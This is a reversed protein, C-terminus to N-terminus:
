LKVEKGVPLCQESYIDGGFDITTHFIINSVNDSKPIQSPSTFISFKGWNRHKPLYHSTLILTQISFAAVLVSVNSTQTVLPFIIRATVNPKPALFLEVNPMSAVDSGNVPSWMTRCVCAAKKNTRIGKVALTAPAYTAASPTAASPTLAVHTM